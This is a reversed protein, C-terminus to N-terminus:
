DVVFKKTTIGKSNYLRVLYSGKVFNSVNM